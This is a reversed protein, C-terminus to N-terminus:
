KAFTKNSKVFERLADKDEESIKDFRIGIRYSGDALVLNSVTEAYIDINRLRKEGVLHLNMLKFKIHLQTNLPIDHKTIFAIGLDSLDLMIAGAEEALGLSIRLEYPKEISYSLSFGANIRESKRRNQGKIEEAM